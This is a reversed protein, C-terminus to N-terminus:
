RDFINFDHLTAKRNAGNSRSWDTQHGKHTAPPQQQLETSTNYKDSAHISQNYPWWVKPWVLIHFLTLHDNEEEEEEEEEEEKEEGRGEYEKEMTSRMNQSVASLRGKFTLM